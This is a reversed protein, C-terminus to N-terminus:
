DTSKEQKTNDMSQVLEDMRASSDMLDEHSRILELAKEIQQTTMQELHANMQQILQMRALRNKTEQKIQERNM